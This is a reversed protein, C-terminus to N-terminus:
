WAVVELGAFVFYFAKFFAQIVTKSGWGMGLLEVTGVAEVVFPFDTVTQGLPPSRIKFSKHIREDWGMDRFRFFAFLQEEDLHWFPLHEGNGLIHLKQCDGQELKVVVCCTITRLERRYRVEKRPVVKNILLQMEKRSRM